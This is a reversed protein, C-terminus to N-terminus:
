PEVTRLQFLNRDRLGMLYQEAKVASVTTYAQM